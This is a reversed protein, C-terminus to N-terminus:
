LKTQKRQDLSEPCGEIFWQWHKRLEYYDLSELTFVGSIIFVLYKHTEKLFHASYYEHGGVNVSGVTYKTFLRYLSHM